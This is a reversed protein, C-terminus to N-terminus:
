LAASASLFDADLECCFLLLYTKESGLECGRSEGANHVGLLSSDGESASACSVMCFPKAHVAAVAHRMCLRCWLQLGATLTQGRHVCIYSTVTLGGPGQASEAFGAAASPSPECPLPGSVSTSAPSASPWCCFLEGRNVLSSTVVKAM